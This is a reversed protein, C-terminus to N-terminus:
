ISYKDFLSGKQGSEVYAKRKPYHEFCVIFGIM